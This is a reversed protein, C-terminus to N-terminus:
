GCVAVIGSAWHGPERRWTVEHGGSGNRYVAAGCTRCPVGLAVVGALDDPMMLTRGPRSLLWDQARGEFEDRAKAYGAPGAARRQRPAKARTETSVMPGGYSQRM